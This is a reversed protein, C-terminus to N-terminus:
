KTLAIYGLLNDGSPFDASYFYIRKQGSAEVYQTWYRTGTRVTLIPLDSNTVDREWGKWTNSTKIRIYNAGNSTDIATITATSDNMVIAEFTGYSSPTGTAGSSYYGAYKGIPLAGIIDALNGSTIKMGLNSNQKDVVQKLYASSPVKDTATSETQVIDTKAVYDALKTALGSDSVLEQAVKRALVDLLAQANSDGGASVVLGQTDTAKVSTAAGNFGGLGAAIDGVEKASEAADEASGSAASASEAASSASGAAANASAQASEKAANADQLTMNAETIAKQADGAAQDATQSAKNATVVAEDVHATNIEAETNVKEALSIMSERVDRGYTATRFDNIEKSIDAM